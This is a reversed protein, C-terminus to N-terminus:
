MPPGARAHHGPCGQRCRVEATAAQQTGFLARHAAPSLVPLLATADIGYVRHGAPRHLLPPAPRPLLTLTPAAPPWADHWGSTMGPLVAM